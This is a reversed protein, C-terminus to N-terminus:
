EALKASVAKQIADAVKALAKSAEVDLIAIIENPMYVRQMRVSYKWEPGRQVHAGIISPLNTGSSLRRYHRKGDPSKDKDHPIYPCVELIGGM